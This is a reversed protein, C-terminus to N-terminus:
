KKESKNEKYVSIKYKSTAKKALKDSIELSTLSDLQAKAKVYKIKLTTYEHNWHAWESIYKDTMYDSTKQVAIKIDQETAFNEYWSGIGFGLSILLLYGVFQGWSSEAELSVRRARSQADSSKQM